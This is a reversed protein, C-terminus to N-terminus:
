GLGSIDFQWTSGNDPSMYVVTVMTAVFINNGVYEIYRNANAPNNIFSNTIGIWSNGDDASKSVGNNTTVYFVGYHNIIFNSPYNQSVTSLTTWQASFSPLFILLFTSFIIQKNL